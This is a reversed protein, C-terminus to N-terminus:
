RNDTILWRSVEQLHKGDNEKMQPKMIEKIIM